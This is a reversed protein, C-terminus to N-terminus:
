RGLKGGGKLQRKRLVNLWVSVNCLGSPNLFHEQQPALNFPVGRFFSSVM